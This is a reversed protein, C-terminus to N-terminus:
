VSSSNVISFCRRHLQREATASPAASFDSFSRVSGISVASDSDISILLCSSSCSCVIATSLASSSL